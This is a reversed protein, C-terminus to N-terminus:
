HFIWVIFRILIQLLYLSYSYYPICPMPYNATNFLTTGIPRKLIVYLGRKVLTLFQPLLNDPALTNYVSHLGWPPTHRAYKLVPFSVQTGPTFHSFAASPLPPRLCSLSERAAQARPEWKTFHALAPNLFLLAALDSSPSMIRLTVNESGRESLIDPQQTLPHYFAHTQWPWIGLSPCQNRYCGGETEPRRPSCASWRPGQWRSWRPRREGSSCTWDWWARVATVGPNKSTTTERVELEAVDTEGALSRIQGRSPRNM